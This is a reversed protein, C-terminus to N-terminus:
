PKSPSAPSSPGRVEDYIYLALITAFAATILVVEWGAIHCCTNGTAAAAPGEHRKRNRRDSDDNTSTQGQSSDQGNTTGAQGSDQLAASTSGHTLAEGPQLVVTNTGDTIRLSGEIAAITETGPQNVLAFKTADGSAPSISLDALRGTFRKTTIVAGGQKLEINNEQYVVSSDAALHVTTGGNSIIATVQKLTQIKDGVFIPSSGPVASGNITVSGTANLMANNADAMTLVSPLIVLMVLSVLRNLPSVNM